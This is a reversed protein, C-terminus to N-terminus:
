KLNKIKFGAVVKANRKAKPTTIASRQSSKQATKSSIAPLDDSVSLFSNEIDTNSVVLDLNAGDVSNLNPNYIRNNRTGRCKFVCYIVSFLLLLFAFSSSGIIVYFTSSNDLIFNLISIIM